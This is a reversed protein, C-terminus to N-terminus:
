GPGTEGALVSKLFPITIRRQAALSASDLRDLLGVLSVMDRSHHSLMYRPVSPDLRLGLKLARASLAEEKELDTPVQVQYVGGSALRSALDDLVLGLHAPAQNGSVVVAGGSPVLREYIAMVAQLSVASDAVLHIDDICVLDRSELTSPDPFQGSGAPVYHAKGREAAFAECCGTLLHTKGCGPEGWLYLIHRDRRDEVLGHLEGLLEGNADGVFDELAAAQGAQLPIM